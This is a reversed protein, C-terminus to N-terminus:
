EGKPIAWYASLACRTGVNANDQTSSFSFRTQAHCNDIPDNFGCGKLPINNATDCDAMWSRGNTWAGTFDDHWCDSTHEWLNGITDHAGVHSVGGPNTGIPQTGGTGCGYGQTGGSENFVAENNCTLPDGRYAIYEWEAETPLRAAPHISQCLHVAASVDLGNMPHMPRSVPDSLGFGAGDYDATNAPLCEGSAICAAYAEVPVEYKGIFYGMSFDVPHAPAQNAQFDPHGPDTGMMFSTGAPVYIWRDYEHWSDTIEQREYECSNQENCQPNYGPLPPCPTNGCVVEEPPLCETPLDPDECEIPEGIDGLATYWDEATLREGNIDLINKCAWHANGLNTCVEDPEIIDNGLHTSQFKGIDLGQFKRIGATFAHHWEHRLTAQLDSPRSVDRTEPFGVGVVAYPPYAASHLPWTAGWSASGLVGNNWGNLVTYAGFSRPDEGFDTLDQELRGTLFTYLYAGNSQAFETDPDGPAAKLVRDVFYVKLGTTIPLCSKDFLDQTLHLAQNVYNRFAQQDGGFAQESVCARTTAEGPPTIDVCDYVLVAMPFKVQCLEGLPDEVPGDTGGDTEPPGSDIGSDFGGDATGVSGDKGGTSEPPEKGGTETEIGGDNGRSTKRVENSTGCGPVSLLYALPNLLLLSQNRWSDPSVRPFLDAYRGPQRAM